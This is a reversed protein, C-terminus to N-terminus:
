SKNDWLDEFNSRDLWQKWPTLRFDEAPLQDPEEQDLVDVPKAQMGGIRLGGKGGSHIAFDDGAVLVIKKFKPEWNVLMRRGCTPCYWEEAGSSHMKELVMEHQQQGNM